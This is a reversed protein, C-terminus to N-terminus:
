VTGSAEGGAGRKQPLRRLHESRGYPRRGGQHYLPSADMVQKMLDGVEDALTQMYEESEGTILGCVVGNINLRVRRKDM